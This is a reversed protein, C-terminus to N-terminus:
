CMCVGVSSLQHSQHGYVQNQFRVLQPRAEASSCHDERVAQAGQVLHRIKGQVFYWCPTLVQVNQFICHYVECAQGKGKCVGMHLGVLIVVFLEFIQRAGYLEIHITIAHVFM